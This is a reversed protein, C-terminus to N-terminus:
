NWDPGKKGSFHDLNSNAVYKPWFPRIKIRLFYEKQPRTGIQPFKSGGFHNMGTFILRRFHRSDTLNAM